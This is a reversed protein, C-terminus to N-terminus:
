LNFRGPSHAEEIQRAAGLAGLEELRSTNKPQDMASLKDLAKQDIYKGLNSKVWNLELIM